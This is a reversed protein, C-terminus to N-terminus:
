KEALHGALQGCAAQIDAGKSRRVTATLHKEALIKLFGSITEESPAQMTSGPFPNFPIVNIKCRLGSVLRVLRLAQEPSDNVSCVLVYELTLRQRTRLPFNHLETMLEDLPYKRAVPM